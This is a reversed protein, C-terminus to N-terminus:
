LPEKRLHRFAERSRSLAEGINAPRSRPKDAARRQAALRIQAARDARAKLDEDMLVAGAEYTDQSVVWQGEVADKELLALLTEPDERLRGEYQSVRAADGTSIAALAALLAIDRDEPHDTAIQYLTEYEGRRYAIEAQKRRALAVAGSKELLQEAVELYGADSAFEAGQHYYDVVGPIRDLVDAESLLAGIAALKRRTDDGSLDRQLDLVLQRIIEKQAPETQLAPLEALKLMMAYDSAGSLENLAFRLAVAVDREDEAHGLVREVENLLVDKEAGSFTGGYQSLAALADIRFESRALFSRVTDEAAPNGTGMDLLARTFRLRPSNRIEDPTFDSLLTRALIPEGLAELAPVTMAAVQIGLKRPLKRFAVVHDAMLDAGDAQNDTLLAIALWLGAEDHCASLQRFFDVDPRQRDDLLNAVHRFVAAREGEAFRLEALAESNLGLVLYAKVLPENFGGEGGSDEPSGSVNRFRELDRYESVEHFGTFDLPYERACRFQIIPESDEALALVPDDGSPSTRAADAHAGEPGDAPDPPQLIQADLARSLIQDLRESLEESERSIESAPAAAAQGAAPVVERDLVDEGHATCTQALGLCAASILLKHKM